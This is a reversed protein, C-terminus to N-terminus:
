FSEEIVGGGLVIDDQYIVGAQGPTIAKQAEEFQVEFREKNIIRVTASAEKFRYRIKVQAKFQSPPKKWFVWNAKSAIFSKKYLDKEEGVIVTNKQHDIAIVYLPKGLPIGLGKRQGITYFIIGKHEGLINGKKDVIPGPKISPLYKKLFKRYNKEPIFCIEQSESKSAVHLNKKQAIQRVEEKKLNGLPFLTHSLNEQNLMYLVYSQDKGEDIGKKLYYVNSKKDYSIRAYHGTALYEAGLSFAKKLLLDFKIIENCKLCPNPTRGSVYEKVFYDIVSKKFAEKFNLTYHPIELAFSVKKADNVAKLSCCGRYSDPLSAEEEEWLSLTVGIVEYGEEKLILAAVSSDVGGSMAVVVKKKM